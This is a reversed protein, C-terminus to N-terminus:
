ISWKFGFACQPLFRFPTNNMLDWRAQASLGGYLSIHKSYNWNVINDFQLYLYKKSVPIINIDTYGRDNSVKITLNSKLEIDKKYFDFDCGLTLATVGPGGKYGSWELDGQTDHRWYGLAWDYNNNKEALGTTNNITTKNNIYLVPSTYVAEAWFDADFDNFSKLYSAGVMGGIANPVISNPESMTQFQDVTIQMHLELRPLPVYEIEFGMINNAEDHKNKTTEPEEEYNYLNHAMFLPILYRIDFPNDTYMVNGLDLIARFNNLITTDFRHMIRIQQKPGGYRTHEVVGNLAQVDFHTLNLSYTFPKAFFSFDMAEQFRYNDGLVLNATRSSGMQQRTRGVVVNMWKGGIAGRALTPFEAYKKIRHNNQISATISGNRYDLLYGFSSLPIGTPVTYNDTGVSVEGVAGNNMFEYSTEFFANNGYEVEFEINFFADQENFPIFFDKYGIKEFDKSYFIQPAISIGFDYSFDDSSNLKENISNLIAKHNNDLKNVDIREIAMKLEDATIPTASSPGVVGAIKCLKVVNKYEPSFADFLKQNGSFLPLTFIIAIILVLLISKKIM